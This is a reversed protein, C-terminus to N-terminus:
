AHALPKLQGDSYCKDALKLFDTKDDNFQPCNIIANKIDDLGRNHGGLTYAVKRVTEFRQGIQATQINNVGWTILKSPSTFQATTYTTKEPKKYFNEVKLTDPNERYLMNADYSVYRLDNYNRGKSTDIPINYDKFVKFIQLAYDQLREPEAIKAFAYLGNGSCSVGVFGIFPLAFIARKLEEIDYEDINDFDLQLLGSYSLVNTRKQLHNLSYCGLLSKLKRKKNEYNPDDRDLSKIKILTSLYDSFKSFLIQRLTLLQGVKDLHNNYFSTIFDLWSESKKNM